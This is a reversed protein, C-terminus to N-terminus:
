DEKRSRKPSLLKGTRQTSSLGGDGMVLMGAVDFTKGTSAVEAAAAIETAGEAVGGSASAAGDARSWGGTGVVAPAPFYSEPLLLTEHGKSWMGHSSGAANATPYAAMTAANGEESAFPDGSGDHMPTFMSYGQEPKSDPAVHPPPGMLPALGMIPALEMSPALEVSGAFFGVPEGATTDSASRLYSRSHYDNRIPHVSTVLNTSPHHSFGSGMSSSIGMGSSNIGMDEEVDLLLSELEELEMGHVSTMMDEGGGGRAEMAVGAAAVGVGATAVDASTPEVRAAAEGLGVGGRLSEEKNEVGLVQAGVHWSSSRVMEELGGDGGSWAGTREGEVGEGAVETERSEWVRTHLLSDHLNREYLREREGQGELWQPHAYELSHSPHFPSHYQNVGQSPSQLQLSVAPCSASRLWPLDSRLGEQEWTRQWPFETSLEDKYEQKCQFDAEAAPKQQKQQDPSLGQQQPMHQQPMNQLLAQHQHYHDEQQQEQEQQRQQQQRQQRHKEEKQPQQRQQDQYGTKGGHQGKHRKGQQVARSAAVSPPGDAYPPAAAEHSPADLSHARAIRRSRAATSNQFGGSEVRGTAAAVEPIASNAFGIPFVGSGSGRLPQSDGAALSAAPATATASAAAAPARPSATPATAAAGSAAVPAAGLSTRTAAATTTSVQNRLLSNLIDALEQLDEHRFEQDAARDGVKHAGSASSASKNSAADAAFAAAGGAGDGDAASGAAREQQLARQQQPVLKPTAVQKTRRNMLKERSTKKKSATQTQDLHWSVQKQEGKEKQWQDQSSDWEVRWDLKEEMERKKQEKRMQQEEESQQPERMELQEAVGHGGEVGAGGDRCSGPPKSDNLYHKFSPLTEPYVPGKLFGEVQRSNGQQTHLGQVLGQQGAPSSSQQHRLLLEPQVAHSSSGASPQLFPAPSLESHPSIGQQEAPSSSQQRRLFLEQQEAHSSSGAIPQPFPLPAPSHESHPSLPYLLPSAPGPHAFLNGAGVEAGVAAGVGAEEMKVSAFDAAGVAVSAEAGARKVVIAAAVVGAEGAAGTQEVEMAVAEVSAGEAAGTRAAKAVISVNEEELGVPMAADVAAARSTVVSSQVDVPMESCSSNPSHSRTLTTPSNNGEHPQVTVAQHEVMGQRSVMAQAVAAQQAVMAQQAAIAQQAVMGQPPVVAQEEATLSSRKFVRVVVWSTTGIRRDSGSEAKPSSAKPSNNSSSGALGGDAAGGGAELRRTDPGTAKDKRSSNRCIATGDGADMGAANSERTVDANAAEPPDLDGATATTRAVDTAAPGAVPSDEALRYEHMVWDTKVGGPARGMYFVHTKKLGARVTQEGKGENGSSSGALRVHVPRDKGTAKWYGATTARNSRYGSPYKLDRAAFFFWEGDGPIPCTARAPLEWPESKYLDVDGIANWAIPLGEVRRRLYYCLLEEDTPRFRFGPPFGEGCSIDTARPIGTATAGTAKSSTTTPIGACTVALELHRNIVEAPKNSTFVATTDM